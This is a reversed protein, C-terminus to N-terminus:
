RAELTLGARDPFRGMVGMGGFTDSLLVVVENAGATLPLYLRAQDLGILGERRGAYSYSADGRFMARGNVFVTARDSFGLDFARTGAREATVRFRAAATLEEAEPPLVVHRHMEVLGSPEAAVTRLPGLAAADPLQPVGDGPTWKLPGSVAWTSVRGPEEPLAPAPLTAIDVGTAGTTVRVNAYRAGPADGPTGKPVFARLAIFGPAPDRALRPVLLAPKEMDDVFLAMRRGKLVVRVHTWRGADFRVAATRGPGHYLQWASEGQYVPAYQVADPLESKHPRLYMEEFEREDQMRFCLYVFSRRRSLQVDFDVTGDELRLDRRFAWGNDMRVTDRDDVRELAADGKLEWGGGSFPLAQLLVGMVASAFM